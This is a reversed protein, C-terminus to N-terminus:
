GGSMPPLFAIEDGDRIACSLDRVIEQNLAIQSRSAAFAEAFGPARRAIWDKLAAVTAIDAPLDAACDHDVLGRFKGLFVLKVM